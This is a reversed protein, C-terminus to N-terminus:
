RNNNELNDDIEDSSRINTKANKLPETTTQPAINKSSPALADMEEDSSSDTESDESMSSSDSDGFGVQGSTRTGTELRNIM